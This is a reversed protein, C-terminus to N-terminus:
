APNVMGGHKVQNTTALPLRYLQATWISPGPRLDKSLGTDPSCTERHVTCVKDKSPLQCDPTAPGAISTFGKDTHLDSDMLPTNPRESFNHPGNGKESGCSHTAHGAFHAAHHTATVSRESASHPGHGATFGDTFEIHGYTALPRGTLGDHDASPTSFWCPMM